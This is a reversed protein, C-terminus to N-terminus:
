HINRGYPNHKQKEIAWPHLRSLLGVWFRRMDPPLIKKRLIKQVAKIRRELVEPHGKLLQRDSLEVPESQKVMNNKM